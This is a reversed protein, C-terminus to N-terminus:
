LFCVFYRQRAVRVPLPARRIGRTPRLGRTPPADRCREPWLERAERGAENKEQSAHLVAPTGHLGMTHCSRLHIEPPAPAVPTVLTREPGQHDRV